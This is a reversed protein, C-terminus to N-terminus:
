KGARREDSRAGAALAAPVIACGPHSRSPGHSDDTEDAHAMVGNALAADLPAAPLPTGATTAGGKGGHAPAPPVAAQGPPLQSGSIMAALTDLLHHKAQEAAEAPLARTGAESMYASLAAMAASPGSGAVARGPALALGAVATTLRLVHRRTM